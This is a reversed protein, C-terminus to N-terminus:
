QPVQPPKLAVVLDTRAKTALMLAGAAASSADWARAISGTLAAERRIKAANDALQVASTFLNHVDRLESPPELRALVKQIRAAGDLIVGIADPGSGALSKIDELLPMMQQLRDLSSSLGSRYARLEPARLAWRDRELRLRRAGDLQDEVTAIMSAVADPRLGGLAQDNAKITNVVNQVGRVDAAQARAAALKLMRSALAQYKRDTELESAIQGRVMLRTASVWDAPLSASEADLANLAVTLLSVREAPSPTLQAARVTQEIVERPGPAPIISELLPSSDSAAVFTLDFKDAGTTARLSAIAEDLTTLMQQIEDRKYNYHSAPWDALAKRAKEVIALRRAPDESLGVDNLAQAIENTLLAYDSQARLAIYRTARVSEAYNLTRTWDVTNSPINILQLQPAADSPSTPMSFVVHDEVRAMEGFSVLTTGDKLFVRFLPALDADGAAPTSGAAPASAVPAGAAQPGAAQAQAPGTALLCVLLLGATRHVKM